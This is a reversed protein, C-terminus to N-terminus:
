QLYLNIIDVPSQYIDRDGSLKYGKELYPLAKKMCDRGRRSKAKYQEPANSALDKANNLIEVGQNFYLAGMSYYAKHSKKDSKISQQYYKISQKTDHRDEAIRGLALYLNSRNPKDLKLLKELSLRANDPDDKLLYAEVEMYLQEIQDKKVDSQTTLSTGLAFILIFTLM